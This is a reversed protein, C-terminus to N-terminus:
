RVESYYATDVQAAAGENLARNSRCDICAYVEDQNDGFVRAFSKTVFAGCEDCDPM